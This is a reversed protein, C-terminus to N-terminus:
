FPGIKYPLSNTVIEGRVQRVVQLVLVRKGHEKIALRVAEAHAEDYSEHIRSHMGIGEVSVMHPVKEVAKPLIVKKVM